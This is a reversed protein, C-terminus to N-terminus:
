AITRSRTLEGVQEWVPHEHTSRDPRYLWINDIWVEGAKLDPAVQGIRMVRRVGWPDIGIQIFLDVAAAIL